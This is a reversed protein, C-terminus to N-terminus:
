EFRKQPPTELTVVAADPGLVECKLGVEGIHQQLKAMAAADMMDGNLGVACVTIEGPPASDYHAVLDGARVLGGLAQPLKEGVVAHAFQIQFGDSSYKLLDAITALKVRGALVIVQAFDLAVPLESRAIVDIARGGAPVALALDTVDAAGAAIRKSAYAHGYHQGPIALSIEVREISVGALAFSGDPAVPAVIQYSSGIDGILEAHVTLRASNQGALAVKGSVKRTPALVLRLNDGIPQPVSRREGLTAVAAGHQAAREFAFHGAGDTTTVRLHADPEHLNMPPMPVGAPDAVLRDAVAVSAGIVPKGAADVVSGELRRLAPDHEERPHWVALLEAHAGAVDGRRFKLHADDRALQDAARTDHLKDAIPRWTALAAAIAADDEATGRAFHLADSEEIVRLQRRVLGRAGYDALAHDFRAFAEPWNEQQSAVLGRMMEIPALLDGDGIRKAAVDARQIAAQGKPGIVPLEFQFPSATVLAEARLHDDGCQESSEVADNVAARQRPVDETTSALALQAVARACPELDARALLEAVPAEPPHADDSLTRAYLEFARVADPTSAVALRPPDATMCVSPEVLLQAADDESARGVRLIARRVVDFRLLVSDLCRLQPGREAEPAACATTRAADWREFDRAFVAALPPSLEGALPPSWVSAPERPPPPCPATPTVWQHKAAQYVVVGAAIGILSLTLARAPRKEARDIAALLADMSPWRKAPVPDLGRRLIKRLRRPLKSADLEAPGRTVEARLEEASIARYPREGALAEWMAVCYAFQDTAPTVAAGSWQEPAMYAPTGLVSGTQTLGSLSSPTSEGVPTRANAPQAPLTTTLPDPEADRALGFDTVVIRGEGRSRLVNHPKFDRHVIGAAHAAALGRGAAVFAAVIDHPSRPAARLWDALTEGHIMEMAVYDRGAASGVEHVTVVNPHSLRAMARAERLLRGRADTTEATRLVKLAIRRELDPDFAAHVVGMGGQGLEQELRYRGLTPGVPTAPTAPVSTSGPPATATRALEDDPEAM